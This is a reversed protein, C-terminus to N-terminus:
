PATSTSTWCSSTASALVLHLEAAKDAAERAEAYAGCMFRSQMKIIWYWCRM